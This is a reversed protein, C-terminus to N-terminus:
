TYQRMLTLVDDFYSMDKALAFSLHGLPYYAKHVVKDSIQDNLWEVNDPTAIKDYSGAFLAVPVDLNELPISPPEVTGYKQKNTREGYNFQKFQERVTNQFFMILDQYSSGAPFDAQYVAFRDMNDVSTDADAFARLVKECTGGFITCFTMEVDIEWWNLGLVNYFHSKEFAREVM